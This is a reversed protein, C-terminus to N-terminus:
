VVEPLGPLPAWYTVTRVPAEDLLHWIEGIFLSLDNM